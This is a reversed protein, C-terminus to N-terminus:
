GYLQKIMGGGLTKNVGIAAREWLFTIISRCGVTVSESLLASRLCFLKNKKNTKTKATKKELFYGVKKQFWLGM